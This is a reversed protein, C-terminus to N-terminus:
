RPITDIYYLELKTPCNEFFNEVKVRFTFTKGETNYSLPPTVLWMEVSEQSSVQGMYGTAKAM